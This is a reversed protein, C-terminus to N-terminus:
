NRGQEAEPKLREEALSSGPDPNQVRHLFFDAAPESGIVYSKDVILVYTSTQQSM